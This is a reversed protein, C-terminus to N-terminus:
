KYSNTFHFLQRVNIFKCMAVEKSFAQSTKLGGVQISTFNLIQLNTPLPFAYRRKKKM